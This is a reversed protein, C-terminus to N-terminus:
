PSYEIEFIDDVLTYKTLVEEEDTKDITIYYIYKNSELDSESATLNFTIVLDIITGTKKLINTKDIKYKKVILNAVYDDLNDLGTVTCIITYNNERYLKIANVGM